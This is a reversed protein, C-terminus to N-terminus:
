SFSELPTKFLNNKLFRRSGLPFEAVLSGTQDYLMFQYTRSAGVIDMVKKLAEEQSKAPLTYAQSVQNESKKILALFLGAESM